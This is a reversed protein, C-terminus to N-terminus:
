EQRYCRDLLEESWEEGKMIYFMARAYAELWKDDNIGGM